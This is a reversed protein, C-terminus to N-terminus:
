DNKKEEEAEFDFNPKGLRNGVITDGHDDLSVKERHAENKADELLKKVIKKEKKFDEDM